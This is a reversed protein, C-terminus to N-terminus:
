AAMKMQTGHGNMYNDIFRHIDKLRQVKIRETASDQSEMAKTAAYVAEIKPFGFDLFVRLAALDAEKEIRTPLQFHKREHMLIFWRIPISYRLFHSRSVEIRGTKRHTRAPTILQRGLHDAIVPLYEILFEKDPSDYFGPALIGARQSFWNAFAIFRHIEPHAVVYKPELTSVKFQEVKTKMLGPGPFTGQEFLAVTMRDPTLPFPINVERYDQGSAVHKETFRVRREVYVSQPFDYNDARIIVDVPASARLGLTLRIRERNTTLPVIM